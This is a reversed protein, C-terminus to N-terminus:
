LEILFSLNEKKMLLRFTSRILPLASHIARIEIRLDSTFTRSKSSVRLSVLFLVVKLNDLILAKYYSMSSRKKKKKKTQDILALKNLCEKTLNDLFKLREEIINYDPMSDTPELLLLMNELSIELPEKMKKMWPIKVELNGIHSFVHRIPLNLHELLEPNLTVEKLSVRGSFFSTRIKKKDIGLIYDGLISPLM